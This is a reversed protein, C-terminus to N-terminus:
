RTLVKQTLSASVAFWANQTSLIIITTRSSTKRTYGTRVVSFCPIRRVATSFVVLRSTLIWGRFWSQSRISRVAEVIEHTAFSEGCKM